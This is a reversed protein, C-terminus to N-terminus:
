SHPTSSPFPLSPFVLFPSVTHHSSSSSPLCSGQHITPCLPALSFSPPTYLASAPPFSLFSTSQPAPSCAVPSEQSSRCQWHQITLSFIGKEDVVYLAVHVECARKELNKKGGFSQVVSNFVLEDAVWRHVMKTQVQMLQGRKQNTYVIEDQVRVQLNNSIASEKKKLLPNKM